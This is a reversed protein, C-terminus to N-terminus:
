HDRSIRPLPSTPTKPIAHLSIMVISDQDSSFETGHVKLDVFNQRTQLIRIEVLYSLVPSNDFDNAITYHTM